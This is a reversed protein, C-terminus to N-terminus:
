RVRSEVALYEKSPKSACVGDMFVVLSVKKSWEATEREIISVVADRSVKQPAFEQMMIETLKENM